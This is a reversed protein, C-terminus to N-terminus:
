SENGNRDSISKQKQNATLLLEVGERLLDQWSFDAARQASIVRAKQRLVRVQDPDLRIHYVKM